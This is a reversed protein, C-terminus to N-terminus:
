DNLRAASETSFGRQTVSRILAFFRRQFGRRDCLPSRRMQERVNGYQARFGSLNGALAVAIDVYTQHNNAILTDLGVTHLLSTGVRAAHTSGTWTIVPRGMWLAECTTTTGHYPYTDLAIDVQNYIALHTDIGPTWSLLDLREAAIGQAAFLTRLRAAVKPDGLPRSKLKLRSDSVQRLIESWIRIMEPTIKALANFSGFTIPRTQDTGPQTLEPDYEPPVYCLFCDDLRLLRESYFADAGDPDAVADTIRYDITPLGTTNPYGLYTIQVPSPRLAFVGLRHDGTHGALDVLVDIGDQQIVMAADIDSLATIDRWGAVHARIRDTTTDPKHTNSYCHIEITSDGHDLLAEFFFAVSHNRFDPSVFGIRTPSSQTRPQPSPPLSACTAIIKEGWERHAAFVDKAHFATTYNLTFLRNDAALPNDPASRLSEDLYTLAEDARGQGLALTGLNTLAEAFTPRLAIAKRYATEAEHERNMGTLAIGINYYAEALTPDITIAKQHRTIAEDLQGTETLAVGLNSLLRADNPRLKLAKRNCDICAELVGLKKCLLALRSLLDVDALTMALAARCHEMAANRDRAAYLEGLTLQAAPLQPNLALATNLNVIAEDQQGSIILAAGLNCLADAYKPRLSLAQRYCAIARHVDGAQHWSNGLENSAEPFDPRLKLARKFSRIADDTNGLRLRAIGLNFHAEPVTPNLKIAKQVYKESSTFDGLQGYIASMMFQAQADNPESKCIKACLIQAEQM